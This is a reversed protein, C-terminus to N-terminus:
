LPDLPNHITVVKGDRMFVRPVRDAIMCTIEYNLTGLKVAVEDATITEGGQSGILVVEEGAEIQNGSNAIDGDAADLAIMCQDMCITGLVPVRHGRVLVEAKGTLMRSYGDAYGVPLTGIREEGQTVYRTGYSIGWGQSAQKVMVVQTKLSLVPELQIRQKNVETLLIFATCASVM